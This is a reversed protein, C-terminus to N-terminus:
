EKCAVAAVDAASAWSQQPLICCTPLLKCIESGPHNLTYVLSDWANTYNNVFCMCSYIGNRRHTYYVFM